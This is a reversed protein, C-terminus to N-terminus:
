PEGEKFDSVPFFQLNLQCVRDPGQDREVLDMAQRMGEKGLGKAGGRRGVPARFSARRGETDAAAVATRRSGRVEGGSGTRDLFDGDYLGCSRCGRPGM